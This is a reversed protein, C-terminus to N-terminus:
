NQAIIHICRKCKNIETIFIFEFWEEKVIMSLNKPNYFDSCSTSRETSLGMTMELLARARHVHIHESRCKASARNGIEEALESHDLYHIAKERM